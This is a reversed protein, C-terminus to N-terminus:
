IKKKNFVKIVWKKWIHKTTKNQFLNFKIDLSKIFRLDNFLQILENKNWIFVFDILLKNQNIPYIDYNLTNDKKVIISYNRKNSDINIKQIDFYYYNTGILDIKLTIMYKWKDAWGKIEEMKWVEINWLKIKDKNYEIYKELIKEQEKENKFFDYYMLLENWTITNKKFKDELEKKLHLNVQNKNNEQEQINNISINKKNWMEELNFFWKYLSFIIWIIVIFFIISIIIKKKM